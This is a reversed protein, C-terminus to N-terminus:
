AVRLAEAVHDTLSQLVESHDERYRFNTAAFDGFLSICCSVGECRLTAGWRRGVSRIGKYPQTNRRNRGCNRANGWKDTIRLNFRRNDLRNRNMHDVFLGAPANAVVRHMLIARRCETSVAYGGSHLNWKLTALPADPEDILAYAAVTGDRRHLPVAIGAPHHETATPETSDGRRRWKLCLRDTQFDLNVVAGKLPGTLVLM